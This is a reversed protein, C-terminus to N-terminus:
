WCPQPWGESSFNLVCGVGLRAGLYGLAARVYGPRRPLFCWMRAWRGSGPNFGLLKLWSPQSSGARFKGRSLPPGSDSNSSQHWVNDSPVLISALVGGGASAERGQLSEALVAETSCAHERWCLRSAPIVHLHSIHNRMFKCIYIQFYAIVGPCVSSPMSVQLLLSTALTRGVIANWPKFCPYSIKRFSAFM